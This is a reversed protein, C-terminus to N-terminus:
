VAVPANAGRLWPREVPQPIVAPASGILSVLVTRADALRNWVVESGETDSIFDYAARQHRMWAVRVDSTEDAFVKLTVASPDLGEITEEEHHVVDDIRARDAVEAAHLVAGTLDDARFVCRPDYAFAGESGELLYARVSVAVRNGGTLVEYRPEPTEILEGDREIVLATGRRYITVNPGPLHFAPVLGDTLPLHEMGAM